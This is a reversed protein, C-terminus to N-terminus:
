NTEFRGDLGPVQLTETVVERGDSETRTQIVKFGAVNGATYSQVTTSEAPAQTTGKNTPFESTQEGFAVSALAFCFALGAMSRTMVTGERNTNLDMICGSRSPRRASGVSDAQVNDSDDYQLSANTPWEQRAGFGSSCEMIPQRTARPVQDVDAKASM